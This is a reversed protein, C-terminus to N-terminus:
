RTSSSPRSRPSSTESSSSKLHEGSNVPSPSEEAPLFDVIEPRKMLEAPPTAFRPAKSVRPRVSLTPEPDYSHACGTLALALIPLALSIIAKSRM